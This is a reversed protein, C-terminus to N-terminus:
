RQGANPAPVLFRGTTGNITLAADAYAAGGSVGAPYVFNLQNIIEGPAGGCYQVTAPQDGVTLQCSSPDLTAGTGFGNGWLWYVSGSQMACERTECGVGNVWALGTAPDSLFASPASATITVNEINGPTGDRMAQIDAPGVVTEWPVQFNIQGPSVYTLPAPLGNVSVSVGAVSSPFEPDAAVLHEADALNSGYLTALSGPALASLYSAANAV